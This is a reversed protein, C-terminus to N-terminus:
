RFRRWARGGDRAVGMPALYVFNLGFGSAVAQEWPADSRRVPVM